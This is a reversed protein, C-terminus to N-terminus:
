DIRAARRQRWSPMQESGVEAWLGTASRRARGEIDLFAQRYPHDFRPDAYAFGQRLLMENFMKGGREIQIYALLRGYKGRTDHPALM